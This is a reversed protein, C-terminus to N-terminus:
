VTASIRSVSRVAGGGCFLDVLGSCANSGLAPGSLRRGRDGMCYKVATKSETAGSTLILCCFPIAPPPRDKGIGIGIRTANLRLAAILHTRSVASLLVSAFSASLTELSIIPTASPVLEIHSLRWATWLSATVALTLTLTNVITLFLLHANVYFSM